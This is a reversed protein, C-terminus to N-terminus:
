RDEEGRYIGHTRPTGTILPPITQDTRLPTGDAYTFKGYPFAANELIQKAIGAQKCDISIGWACGSATLTQPLRIVNAPVSRGNHADGLLRQGKMALTMTMTTIICSQM